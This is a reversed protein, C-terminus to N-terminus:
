KCTKQLPKTQYDFLPEPKRLYQIEYITSDPLYIVYNSKYYIPHNIHFEEKTKSNRFM